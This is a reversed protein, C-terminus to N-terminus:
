PLRKGVAEHGALQHQMRLLRLDDVALIRVPAPVVRVLREVKKAVRKSGPLRDPMAIEISVGEQGRGARFRQLGDTPTDPAPSKVMVAVLGQVIQSLRVIRVDFAPYVVEAVEISLLQSRRQQTDIGVQDAPRSRLELAQATTGPSCFLPQRPNTADSWREKGM